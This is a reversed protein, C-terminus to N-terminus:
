IGAQEQYLKVYEPNVETDVQSSRGTGTTRYKPVAIQSDIYHGPRGSKVTKYLEEPGNEPPQNPDLKPPAPTGPSGGGPEDNKEKLLRALRAEEPDLPEGATKNYEAAWVDRVDLLDARSRGDAILKKNQAATQKLAAAKQPDGQTWQYQEFDYLEVKNDDKDYVFRFEKHNQDFQKQLEATQITQNKWTSKGEYDPKEGKKSARAKYQEFDNVAKLLEPQQWQKAYAQRVSVQEVLEGLDITKLTEDQSGGSRNETMPAELTSGDEYTVRLNAYFEGPKGEVPHVSIVEKSAAKAGSTPNNSMAVGANLEDAFVKNFASLMRPDKPTARGDGPNLATAMFDLAAVHETDLVKSFDFATGKMRKYFESSLGKGKKANYMEAQMNDQLWKNNKAKVEREQLRNHNEDVRNELTQGRKFNHDERGEITKRRASNNKYEDQAFQANEVNLQSLTARKDKNEKFEDFEARGAENRLAISKLTADHRESSQTDQKQQRSNQLSVQKKRLRDEEDQRIYNSGKIFGDTLTSM